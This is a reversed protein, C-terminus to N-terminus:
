SRSIIAALIVTRETLFPIDHELSVQSVVGLIHEFSSRGIRFHRKFEANNLRPLTNHYFHHYNQTKEPQLRFHFESTCKGM